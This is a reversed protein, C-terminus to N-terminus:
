KLEEIFDLQKSIEFNCYICEQRKKGGQAVLNLYMKDWEHLYNNYLETDDGSLIVYGKHKLLIELLEIHEEEKFMEHRYYNRQRKTKLYPPDAYILCDDFNYNKILGKADKCEIQADKLRNCVQEILEIYSKFIFPNDPGSSQKTNKWGVKESLKTGYSQSCRVLFLRASEIKEEKTELKCSKYKEEAELYESRAFPTFYVKTMLEYPYDRCVKFFNVVLKDIDNITERQSPMKNFFVGGSGFFPELYIKHKPMISIIKESLKFKSGPYKLLQKM